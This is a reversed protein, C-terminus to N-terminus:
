LQIGGGQRTCQQQKIYLRENEVIFWMSIDTATRAAGRSQVFYFLWFTAPHAFM